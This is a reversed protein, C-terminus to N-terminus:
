ISDVTITHTRVVVQSAKTIPFYKVETVVVTTLPGVTVQSTAEVTLDTTQTITETSPDYVCKCGATVAAESYRNKLIALVTELTAGRKENPQYVYATEVSITFTEAVTPGPPHYSSTQTVAVTVIRNYM